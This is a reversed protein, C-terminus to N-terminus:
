AKVGAAYDQEWRELVGALRDSKTIEYVQQFSEKSIEFPRATVNPVYRGILKKPDIASQQINQLLVERFGPLHPHLYSSHFPVDIGMLPITAKGRQLTIRATNSAHKAIEVRIVELITPFSSPHAFLQDAASGLIALTTLSGACVYQQLEVNHNVIELLSNTEQQIM